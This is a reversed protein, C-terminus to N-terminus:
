RIQFSILLPIPSPNMRGLLYFHGESLTLLTEPSIYYSAALKQAEEIDLPHIRGIFQTNLNRRVAANLGIEGAMGQSLITISLGYSRGLACLEIIIDTTDKEMGRPQWPAYQPGEDIVLAVNLVHKNEMLRKLYKTIAMFTALKQEKVGKSMDIVLIGKDRAKAVIEWPELTGLFKEFEEETIIEFSSELRNVQLRRTDEKVGASEILIAKARQFVLRRSEEPDRGRWDVQRLATEVAAAVPNEERDIYGFNRTISSFYKVVTQNDVKIQNLTIVSEFYPAYDSGKWDMIIVDYGARRLLPIIEYRTLYSKGSGTIGFVGIHYNIYEKLVPVKWSPKGWYHGIFLDSKGFYQMPSDEDTFIEVTSAPAIIIKNQSIGNDNIEGIVQLKFLFYEKVSSPIRRSKAYAVGPTFAGTKLSDNIGLGGRCVALVNGGSKNRILVLSENKVEKEMGDYLVVTASSESAGSCIIGIPTPM